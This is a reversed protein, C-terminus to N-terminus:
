RRWMKWGEELSRSFAARVRNTIRGDLVLMVYCRCVFLIYIGKRYSFFLVVFAGLYEWGQTRGLAWVGIVKTVKFAMEWHALNKKLLESRGAREKGGSTGFGREMFLSFFYM